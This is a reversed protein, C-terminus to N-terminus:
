LDCGGPVLPENGAHVYETGNWRWTARCKRLGEVRVDPMGGEDGTPVFAFSGCPFGLHSRYIGQADKVFVFLSQGLHGSLCTNGGLVVVESDGDGDLDEISIEHTVPKGCVADRLAARDDTLALGLAGAIQAREVVRLSDRHEAFLLEAIRAGDDTSAEGAQVQAFALAAALTGAGLLARVWGGRM